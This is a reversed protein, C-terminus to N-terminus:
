LKQLLLVFEEAAGNIQEDTLTAAGFTLFPKQWEMSCANTTMQMPRLMEEATFRNLGTPSFTEEAAGASCAVLVKKGKLFNESGYLIPSLVEDQWLRLSPPANYWHVPFLWIVCSAKRLLAFEEEISYHNEKQVEDLHRVTVNPLLGAKQALAKNIRSKPYDPHSILLLINENM